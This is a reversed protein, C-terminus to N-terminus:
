QLRIPISVLNTDSGDRPSVLFVELTASGSYSSPASITTDFIGFVASTGISALTFGSAIQKGSADKIRWSVHAEFAQAAGVLHIQHGSVDAAYVALGQQVWATPGGVDLIVRTPQTLVAVRWPRLDDLGVTYSVANQTASSVLSRLPTKETLGQYTVSQGPQLNPDRGGDITVTLAWKALDPNKVEDNQAASARVTPVAADAFELTVRALGPAVADVSLRVASVTAPAPQGGDTFSTAAPVSYGFVDERKFVDCDTHQCVLTTPYLTAIQAIRVRRIGPEESATYVIEQLVADSASKAIHGWNDPAVPFKYEVAAVDGTVTVNAIRATSQFGDACPRDQSALRPLNELAQLRQFIRQEPTAGDIGQVPIAFPPAGDRACYVVSHNLRGPLPTGTPRPTPTPSTIVAPASESASPTPTAAPGVQPRLQSVYLAGLALVLVAALAAYRFLPFGFGGPHTLEAALRSDEFRTERISQADVARALAKGLTHQDQENM